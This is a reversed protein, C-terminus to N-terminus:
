SNRITLRRRPKTFQIIVWEVCCWIWLYDPLRGLRRHSYGCQRYRRADRFKDSGSHAPLLHLAEAQGMDNAVQRSFPDLHSYIAHAAVPTRSVYLTMYRNPLWQAWPESCFSQQRWACRRGETLSETLLFNLSHFVYTTPKPAM